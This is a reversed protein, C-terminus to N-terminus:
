IVEYKERESRADDDGRGLALALALRSCGGEGGDRPGPCRRSREGGCEIGFPCRLTSLIPFLVRRLVLPGLARLSPRLELEHDLHAALAMGQGLTGLLSGQGAIRLSRQELIM